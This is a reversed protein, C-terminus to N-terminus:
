ALRDSLKPERACALHEGLDLAREACASRLLDRVKRMQRGVLEDVRFVPCSARGYITVRFM